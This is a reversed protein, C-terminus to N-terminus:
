KDLVFGEPLLQILPRVKLAGDAKTIVEIEPSFEYMFQRCIGCPVSEVDGASIAIKSFQRKGESIAKVFATRKACITAGYSSNEINVGTYIEGDTTLLAAGVCFNSFPAYANARAGEAIEYLKENSIDM